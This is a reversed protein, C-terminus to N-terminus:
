GENKVGMYKGCYICTKDNDFPVVDHDCKDGGLEVACERCYGFMTTHKDVEKRCRRCLTM